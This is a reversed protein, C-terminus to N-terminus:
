HLSHRVRAAQKKSMQEDPPGAPPGPTPKPAGRLNAKLLGDLIFVFFEQSDHMDGLAFLGSRTASTVMARPAFCRQKEAAQYQEALRELECHM